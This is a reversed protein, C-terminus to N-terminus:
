GVRRNRNLERPCRFPIMIRGKTNGKKTYYEIHEKCKSRNVSYLGRQEAYFDMIEGGGTLIYDPTSEDFLAADLRTEEAFEERLQGALTTMDKRNFHKANISVTILTYGGKKTSRIVRRM